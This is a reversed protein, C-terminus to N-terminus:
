LRDARTEALLDLADVPRPAPSLRRLRDALGVEARGARILSGRRAQENVFADWRSIAGLPASVPQHIEAIVEDRDTVYVIEGARVMDLYRSLNNKLNKIGVAKM